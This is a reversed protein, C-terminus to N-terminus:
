QFRDASPNTPDPFTSRKVSLSGRQPQYPRPILSLVAAMVLKWDLEMREDAELFPDYPKDELTHTM